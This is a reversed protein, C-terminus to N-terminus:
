LGGAAWPGTIAFTVGPAQVNVFLYRGSPSFTAGCFEISRYDGPAIRPRGAPSADLTIANEALTFPRGRRDIGILRTGFVRTGGVEKGGGDECTVIGGRPSVTINDINDATDEGPSVFLATLTAPRGGRGAPRLAWVVGKGAAGGGTDVLYVVGRHYWCGEGRAFTAGGAAEGQLFPGSRGTGQIPPLGLGPSVFGEPDADPEPVPVWAVRHVDGTVPQRLDANRTGAVALMELTGGAELDGPAACRRQPRYRYVGSAPGNDETLYVDGTAPDVAAAEHRMLGMGTVPVASAPGLRPAPVEFVYGHDRAGLAAGRLVIEECTLWSGWPTPGGACNVLTGGLTARSGTFRGGAFTLATTGGGLGDVQGPLAFDDYVPAQGLGIRPLPDGALAPGREHNRILVLEARPGRGGAEVVAMGDHRDPTPTGDDMPDGSWGFSQYTFGAPLHLLALGTTADIAPQLPGYGVGPRPPTGPTCGALGALPGALAAAGVV